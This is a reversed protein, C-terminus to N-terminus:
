INLMKRAEDPTATELGMADIIKAVRDVLLVNKDVTTNEDLYDSDEFGVRVTSAGMGLAASFISYDKRHAHTIGWLADEPIFSRMATLAEITAPATGIHGLVISFLIPHRFMFKKRLEAVAHIMGLEFVEIEPLKNMKIIESVCYEVEDIPNSYVSKGLNCSGVNLSTAEVQDYYLPACREQITLNSVGGTSAQIVINSKERIREVIEKFVTLDSTLNGKTDRVHLHVMGAGAKECEIVDEAIKKPNIVKELASVPAVSILVKSVKCGEM